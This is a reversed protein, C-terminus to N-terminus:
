TRAGAVFARWAARWRDRRTVWWLVAAVVLALAVIARIVTSAGPQERAALVPVAGLTSIAVPVLVRMANGFGAFEPPVFPSEGALPDPADRVASVVAGTMGMVASPVALAFAAGTADPELLAVVAAGLAALPVLV